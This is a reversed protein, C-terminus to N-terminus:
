ASEVFMLFLGFLIFGVAGKSGGAVLICGGIFLAQSHKM